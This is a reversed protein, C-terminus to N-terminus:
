RAARGANVGGNPPAGAPEPDGAGPVARRASAAAVASSSHAQWVMDSLSVGAGGPGPRSGARVRGGTAGTVGGAM